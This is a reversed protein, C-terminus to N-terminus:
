SWLNRTYVATEEVPCGTEFNITQRIVKAKINTFGARNYNLMVCDGVRVGCYAHKYTIKYELSSLDRLTQRAHAYLVAMSPTALFDPNSERYVVERGRSVTSIPSNPDENKVTATLTDHENSYIVEVVNPIGYLDREMTVDPYLISSNDDNFTYVPQLSRLDQNPVFIIRGREDLAFSYKANALLSMLYGLWTEDLESVFFRELKDESEGTVVPARLYQKTLIGAVDVIGRGKAISYGVPPYKEKLEILPSYADINIATRNEKYEVSPTQSLYTGLPFKETVGNQNTVLYPRIYLEGLDETVEFSASSITETDLDHTVSGGLVNALQRKDTWTLPDVEYFEYTQRMSKTWDAM